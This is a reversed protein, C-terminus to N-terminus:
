RRRRVFLVGCRSIGPPVTILANLDSLVVNVVVLLVTFVRQPLYAPLCHPLHTPSHSLSSRYVSQALSWDLSVPQRYCHELKCVFGSEVEQKM